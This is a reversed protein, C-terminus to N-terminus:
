GATIEYRYKFRTIEPQFAQDIRMVQQDTLLLQDSERGPGPRYGSKARPLEPKGPLGLQRFISIMEEDLNEFRCVHDVTDRQGGGYVKYGKNNLVRCAGQDLFQDVTIDPYKRRYWYYYSLFRDWPNRVVAFKFYNDWVKAGLEARAERATMHNYFRTRRPRRPRRWYALKRRLALKGTYHQAARCGAEVRASEDEPALPTLIDDEGCFASLAIEISTGATKSTKLFIFRHQHSVIM